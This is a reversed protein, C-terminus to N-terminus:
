SPNEVNVTDGISLNDKTQGNTNNLQAPKFKTRHYKTQGPPNATKDLRKKKTGSSGGGQAIELNAREAEVRIFRVTLRFIRRGNM